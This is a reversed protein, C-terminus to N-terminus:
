AKEALMFHEVVRKEMACRGVNALREGFDDGMIVYNANLPPEGREARARVERSFALNAASLDIEEITRLGGDELAQRMVELTVLFSASTDTAWPLPFILAGGPGQGFESCSFRGARKLVRAVESALKRKDQINMTVNHCWVHDFTGKAFPLDLADAQEFEIRDAMGCRRTLDRAVEIYQPTLDIGTIRCGCIAAIARSSGGVGCGLDLVHMSSKMGAREIHERTAQIGRGHLQDFPFFDQYTPHAPDVGRERLFAIVRELIGSMAYRQRVTDSSNTM